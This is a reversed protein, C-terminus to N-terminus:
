YRSGGPTILSVSHLMQSSTSRFHDSFIYLKNTKRPGVCRLLKKCSLSVVGLGGLEMVCHIFFSQALTGFYCTYNVQLLTESMKMLMYSLSSLCKEM